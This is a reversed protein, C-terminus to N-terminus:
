SDKIEVKFTRKKGIKIFMGHSVKQELTEISAKEYVDADSKNSLFSIGKQNTLNRIKSRSGLESDQKGIEELFEMLSAGEQVYFSKANKPRLKSDKGVLDISGKEAELAVNKNGANLSAVITRALMRKLELPDITANQYEKPNVNESAVLSILKQLESSSIETLERFWIPMIADPISMVKTYLSIPNEDLAIYNGVSKSMKSLRGQKDTTGTTGPLLDVTIVTEPELRYRSMLDRTQILNLYQDQGGIEINSELHVSDYAMFTSYMLEGLSVSGGKKIREQFDRRDMSRSASINQLIPLWEMMSKDLWESNHYIEVSPNSPNLDIIRSAQRIYDQMNNGVEEKTLPKRATMRDTSDGVMATADGIIFQIKHGMQQFRRMMRLTIGHGVHIQGATPDVGVKVTLPKGSLKSRLIKGYLENQSLILDINEPNNTDYKNELEKASLVAEPIISNQYNGVKDAIIEYQESASLNTLNENERSLLEKEIIPMVEKTDNELMKTIDERQIHKEMFKEKETNM